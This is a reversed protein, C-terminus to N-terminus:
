EDFGVRVRKHGYVGKQFWSAGEGTCLKVYHVAHKNLLMFGCLDAKTVKGDVVIGSRLVDNVFVMAAQGDLEVDYAFIKTIARGITGIVVSHGHM